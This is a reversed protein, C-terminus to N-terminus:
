LGNFCHFCLIRSECLCRMLSLTLFQSLLVGAENPMFLVNGLLCFAHVAHPTVM